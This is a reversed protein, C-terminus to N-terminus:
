PNKICHLSRFEERERVFDFVPNEMTKRLWDGYGTEFNKSLGDRSYGGKDAFMSTYRGAQFHDMAYAHQYANELAEITKESNRCQAYEKAINMWLIHLAMHEYGYNEDYLFLRYLKAVTEYAFIKEEPAYEKARLMWGVSDDILNVYSVINHQALELLEEGELVCELVKNRTCYHNPLKMAYERAKESDGKSGYALAITQLVAYRQEDELSRGLITECLRICEDLYEKRDIFLLSHALYEMLTLNNPFEKLAKRLLIINEEIKGQNENVKWQEMIEDIKKQRQIEGCGLLEDVTRDYYAAISPLLTIDPYGEGREWKSVAQVSIGLHSALEEQTNGRERRFAKLNEGILIDM